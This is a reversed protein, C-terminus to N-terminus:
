LLRDLIEFGYSGIDCTVTRECCDIDRFADAVGYFHETIIWRGPACTKYWVGTFKHHRFRSVYEGVANPGLGYLDKAHQM